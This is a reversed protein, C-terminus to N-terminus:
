LWRQNPQNGISCYIKVIQAPLFTLRKIPQIQLPLLILLLLLQVIQKTYKIFTDM